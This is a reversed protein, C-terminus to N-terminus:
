EIKEPGGDQANKEQKKCIHRYILVGALSILLTAAFVLIAFQYNKMGLLDGGMTSTVVSPIRAVSSILLWMPLKMGTLGIFYCILDKPTGPILFILFVWIELKKKNQLFRLSQIKEKPFFAYVLRAGLWRVFLFVILGGLIEGALCLLTGQWMGFAYGAGIELPEGPIVAVFVQLVVMGVFALKGGFGHGDVWARFKEPESVFKLMPRGVFWIILVSFLIFVAMCAISIIRKQKVTFETRM